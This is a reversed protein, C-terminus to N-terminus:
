VEEGGSLPLIFLTSDEQNVVQAGDFESIGACDTTVTIRLMDGIRCVSTNIYEAKPLVAEVVREFFDYAATLRDLEADSDDIDVYYSGTIGLLKMSRYSEGLANILKGKLTEPSTDISLIFDKRRKIYSGLVVICSLIKRKESIDNQARYRQMLRDIEDLQSQTKSELLDYLRNQEEVTKHAKEKQYEYELLANRETLEEHRDELTENLTLIETLDDTWIARGGNVPMNHLRKRSELILPSDAARLMDEKSYAQAASSTYVTHYNRDVISIPMDVSASFLESYGKNSQILSSQICLEFYSLYMLSFFVAIDDVYSMFRLGSSYLLLHIIAFGFPLLPLWFLKRNKTLRSKVVLIILSAAACIVIWAVSIYFVPGYSYDKESWVSADEPFDFSLQHLDNTLILAILAISPLFILFSIKKLRYSEDNGIYMSVLIALVPIILLPVYYSYWLMRILFASLVFRFKIERITIWFVALVAVAILIRRVPKHIIRRSVSIGWSSFIGIYIFTRIFNLLLSPFPKNTNRALTHCFVAAFVLMAIVSFAILSKKRGIIM